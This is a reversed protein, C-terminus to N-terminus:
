GTVTGKATVQSQTYFAVAVAIVGMLAAQWNAPVDLGLGLLLSLVAKAFGSLLPLASRVSVGVAAVLGGLALLAADVLSQTDTSLNLVLSLAILAPVVLAQFIVVPERNM